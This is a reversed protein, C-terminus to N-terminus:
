TKRVPGDVQLIEVGARCVFSGRQLYRIYLIHKYNARDIWEVLHEELLPFQATRQRKEWAGVVM